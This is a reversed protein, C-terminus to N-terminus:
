CLLRTPTGTGNSNPSLRRRRLRVAMVAAEFDGARLSSLQEVLAKWQADSLGPQSDSATQEGLQKM